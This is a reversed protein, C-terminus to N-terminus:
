FLSRDNLEVFCFGCNNCYSIKMCFAFHTFYANCILIFFIFKTSSKKCSIQVFHPVHAISLFDVKFSRETWGSQNKLPIKLNRIVTGKFRVICKYAKSEAAAQIKCYTNLILRWVSFFRKGNCLVCLPSQISNFDSEIPGERPSLPHM